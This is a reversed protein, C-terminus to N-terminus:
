SRPVPITLRRGEVLLDYPDLTENADCICWFQEPDGLSRAAILDMRDAPGVQEVALPQFRSPQPVFRRRKYAVLRGDPLTITGESIDYYRSTPEFM